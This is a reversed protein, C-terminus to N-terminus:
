ASSATKPYAPMEDFNNNPKVVFISPPLFALLATRVACLIPSRLLMIREVNHLHNRIANVRETRAMSFRQLTAPLDQPSRMEGLMAALVSADELAINAGRGTLPSIAHRADGILAVRGKVWPGMPVYMLDSHYVEAPDVADILDHVDQGFGKAYDHLRKRRTEV